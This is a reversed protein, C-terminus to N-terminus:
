IHAAHLRGSYFRTNESTTLFSPFAPRPPPTGPLPGLFDADPKARGICHEQRAGRPFPLLPYLYAIYISIPARFKDTTERFDQFQLKDM